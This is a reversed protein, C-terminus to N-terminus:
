YGIIGSDDHSGEPHFALILGFIIAAVSARNPGIFMAAAGGLALLVGFIRFVRHASSGTKLKRAIAAQRVLHEIERHSIAGDLGAERLAAMIAGDPKGKAALTLAIERAQESRLKMATM